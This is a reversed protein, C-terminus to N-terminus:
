PYIEVEDHFSDLIILRDGPQQSTGEGEGGGWSHHWIPLETDTQTQCNLCEATSTALNAINNFGM